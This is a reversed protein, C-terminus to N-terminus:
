NSNRIRIKQNLSNVFNAIEKALNGYVDPNVERMVNLYDITKSLVGRVERKLKTAAVVPEKTAEIEASERFLNKFDNQSQKIDTVLDTLNLNSVSEQYAPTELDNLLSDLLANEEEYNEEALGLGHQKILAYIKHAHEQQDGREWAMYGRTFLKLASFGADRKIDAALLEETKEKGRSAAISVEMQGGIRTLENAQTTLFEDTLNSKTIAQGTNTALDCTEAVTAKSSTKEIKNNMKFFTQSIGSLQERIFLM